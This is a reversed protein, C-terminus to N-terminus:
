TAAHRTARRAGALEEARSVIAGAVDVGTAEELERLGPSGNVEFVLPGGPVDLMDVGCVELGVVRAAEVAARACDAGLQAPEFRAGRRLSRAMRGAAVRRRVAAVVRGGVVLARLDSGRAEKVYQQVVIDQGLGLIAELAAELSQLTECIMVGGRDGPALLKVLVPVGGVHKVMSKLASPDAAMVTRPVAVGSAALLQLSRMKDRSAALGQPGNLLTVGLLALQNVVALGHQHLSAAIRPVAVDTLPFPKGRHYLAPRGAGLGMEVQAPDVVRVVHGRARAAETLRRTSHIAASRSLITLRM